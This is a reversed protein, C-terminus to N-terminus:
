GRLSEQAIKNCNSFIKDIFTFKIQFLKAYFPKFVEKLLFNDVFHKYCFDIFCIILEKPFNSDKYNCSLQTFNTVIFTM